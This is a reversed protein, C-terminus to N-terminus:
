KNKQFKYYVIRMNEVIKRPLMKRIIAKIKKIASDSDDWTGTCHHIAYTNITKFDYFDHIRKINNINNLDFHQKKYPQFADSPLVSVNGLKIRKDGMKFGCKNKTLETIIKNNEKQDYTGDKKIFHQEDYHELLLKIWENKMKCAMVATLIWIGDAYGTFADNSEVLEDIPKLLEVDSDFYIGGYNYLAYLRVYDSVFAWKKAEYAEKVWAVSNVDFSEENWIMIEYDPCYKKWSSICYTIINSYPNGGFWILHIIKPIGSKEHNMIELEGRM